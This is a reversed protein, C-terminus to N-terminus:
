KTNKKAEIWLRLRIFRRTIKKKSEVAHHFGAPSHWLKKELVGVANSAGHPLFGTKTRFLEEINHIVEYAEQSPHCLAGSKFEKLNLLM